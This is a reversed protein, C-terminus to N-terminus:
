FKQGERVGLRPGAALLIILALAIEVGTQFRINGLFIPMGDFYFTKSFFNALGHIMIAPVVSGGSLAFFYTMIMSVAVASAFFDLQKMLFFGFAMDGGFLFAVERPLHWGAWLLGVLVTARLPSFRELLLPLAFGRWGLEELLGGEDLFVAILYAGLIGVVSPWAIIEISREIDNPSGTSSQIQVFFVFLAIAVVTITGYCLWLDRGTAAAGFPRFRLALKRLGARGKLTAQVCVAAVTPALGFFMAPALWPNLFIIHVTAVLNPYHYGLEDLNRYLMGFLDFAEGHLREYILAGAQWYAVVLVVILLAILYYSFLPYRAIFTRM